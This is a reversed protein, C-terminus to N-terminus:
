RAGKRWAGPPAGTHRKFARSFAPESDYGVREAVEGISLDGQGLLQMALQVRWRAHYRMPSEGVLRTFRDALGSRSVGVRKALAAVTWPHKPEAHILQLTRGVQADKLAALWGTEDPPLRQMYNRVIEVFLLETLRRLIGARGPDSALAEAVLYRLTMELWSGTVPPVEFAARSDLGGVSELAAGEARTRVLLLRPLAEFLPNFRHDCHLFGCVFRAVPGGGGHVLQPLPMESFPPRPLVEGIGIPPCGPGSALSHADGTPFVMVDGANMEVPACGDMEVRCQGEALIHFLAFCEAGPMLLPALQASPPSTVCWPSTFETTFFVAGSLRVVQLVDSLPDLDRGEKEPAEPLCGPTGIM